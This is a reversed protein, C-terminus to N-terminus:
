DSPPLKSTSQVEELIRGIRGLLVTANEGTQTRIKQDELLETRRSNTEEIEADYIEAKVEEYRNWFQREVEAAMDRYTSRIEDRNERLQEAIEEQQKDEQVQAVVDLVSGAVGLIRGVNGIFKARKVAEWPDFNYGFTKGVRYVAKHAQSGKAGTASLLGGSSAEPGTALKSLMSGVNKTAKSAKHARKAWASEDDIDPINQSSSTSTVGENQINSPGPLEQVDGEIKDQLAGEQLEQMEQKLRQMEEKLLEDTRETLTQCRDRFKREAEEQLARVEEETQEPVLSEAVEDGYEVIDQKTKRLEGSLQRRLRDESQHLLQSRRQLLAIAARETSHDTSSLERANEVVSRVQLFPTTIKGKFGRQRIFADLNQVFTDFRAEERYRREREPDEAQEAKVYYEADVFSTFFFQPSRPETVNEIDPRKVDPTGPSVAMQNVVLLIERERDREYALNRFYPGTVEDFLGGTIVFLLLDVQDILDETQADHEPREAAIGPTDVLRVGNWNYSTVESTCVDSDVPIDDRGTLAKILTSKGANYQGVLGVSIPAEELDEIDDFSSPLDDALDQVADDNSEQLIREAESRVETYDQLHSILTSHDQDDEPNAM